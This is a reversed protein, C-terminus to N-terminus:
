QGSMDATVKRRLALEKLLQLVANETVLKVLLDHAAPVCFVQALSTSLDSKVVFERM